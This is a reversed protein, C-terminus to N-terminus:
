AGFSEGRLPLEFRTVGITHPAMRTAITTAMMQNAVLAHDGAYGSGNVDGRIADWTM